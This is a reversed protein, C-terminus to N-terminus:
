VKVVEITEKRTSKDRTFEYRYWINSKEFEQNADKIFNKICVSCEGDIKNIAPILAELIHEMM